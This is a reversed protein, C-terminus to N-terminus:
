DEEGLVTEIVKYAAYAAVAAGVTGIVARKLMRKARTKTFCFAKEKKMVKKVIDKQEPYESIYTSILTYALFEGGKRKSLINKVWEELHKDEMKNMFM